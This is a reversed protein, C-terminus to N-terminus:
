PGRATSVGKGNRFIRDVSQLLKEKDLKLHYEDVGANFGRQVDEESALSTVAMVPLHAFKQDARIRSTLGLGDLNPMEIDTVVLAVAEAHDQLLRWAKEGDEAALVNYGGDHFFKVLQARFFDSDEALLITPAEGNAGALPSRSVKWEPFLTEVLEFIDVLMTTRGNIIASGMVGRQRVISSEVRTRLEVADVPLSALLGVQREGVHLVIVVLDRLDSLPQVNAVDQLAILALTGDGHQMVRRGGITEIQSPAIHEVRAVMDLPVACPEEAGNRFVLLAQADQQRELLSEATLEKNRATNSLSTLGAFAALGPVDLILAVRGDGLITAGAYERLKKLHRGLPKVVIEVTDHLDEVILGYQFANATVVVINVDSEPRHRRDSGSRRKDREAAKSMEQEAQAGKAMELLPTRRSRRDAIGRRRDIKRTGDGPDLYTRPIGLVDGLHLIPILQGRLILVAADGVVEIRRKIQAGPIRILESVNVQPIAFRESGISVLLSPIIALTLPLKILFTSGRGPVSEIELKGGLKDLNTKVVDMGVGRGSIDTVTDATSVGPLLVLGLLEKESMTQVQERTVVGKGIAASAIKQPDLGKGDDRIEIIVQGAEHYAKLEIVGSPPKGAKVRAEPMEVGHDIANRIMQTLPDSLGEIITKDMEVERGSMDLRVDKKLRAALDRVVRPFKQFINGIPQMRTHMIIEQLESTVMNIRQGSAQISRLDKQAIAEILQNRSLVLEGALNMLSELLDVPVRLFKEGTDSSPSPAKEPLAEGPPLEALTASKAPPPAPPEQDPAPALSSTAAQIPLAGAGGGPTQPVCPVSPVRDADLFPPTVEAQSNVIDKKEPPPLSSSLESLAVVFTSIDVDNSDRVIGILERLKDFSLLLLNVTDASPVLQRNRILSLSSEIKHALEQIKTLGFFGAGGKMSHAARFVKNVMPEDISAGNKEIALLDEEISSLHERCEEIYVQLTEEDVAIM